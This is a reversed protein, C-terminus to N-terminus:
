RQREWRGAQWGAWLLFITPVGFAVFPLAERLVQDIM